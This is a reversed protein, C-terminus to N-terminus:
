APSDRERDRKIGEFPPPGRRQSGPPAEVGGRTARTTRTLVTWIGVAFLAVLALTGVLLLIEM